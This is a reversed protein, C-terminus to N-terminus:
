LNDNTPTAKNAACSADMAASIADNCKTVVTQGFQDASLELHERVALAHEPFLDGFHALEANYIAKILDPGGLTSSVARALDNERPKSPETSSQIKADLAHLRIETSQVSAELRILKAAIYLLLDTHTEMIPFM